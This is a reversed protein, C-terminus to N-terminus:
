HPPEKNEDQAAYEKLRNYLTKLSIGLTAAARERHNGYHAMTALIMRKEVQAMSSGIPVTVTPSAKAPAAPAAPAVPTQAQEPQAVQM